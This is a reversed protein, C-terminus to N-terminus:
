KFLADVSDKSKKNQIRRNCSPCVVKKEGDIEWTYSTKKLESGCVQCSKPGSGIAMLIGFVVMVGGGVWAFTPYTTFLWITLGIAVLCGVGGGSKKRGM